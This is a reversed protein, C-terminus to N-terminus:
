ASQKCLELAMMRVEDLADSLRTQDRVLKQKDRGEPLSAWAARLRNLALDLVEISAMSVHLSCANVKALRTAYLKTDPADDPTIRSLDAM